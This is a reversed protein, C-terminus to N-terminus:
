GIHRYSTNRAMNGGGILVDQSSLIYDAATQIQAHGADGETDVPMGNLSHKLVEVQVAKEEGNDAERRANRLLDKIM